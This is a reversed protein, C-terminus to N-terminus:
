LFLVACAGQWRVINILLVFKFFFFFSILEWHNNCLLFQSCVKDFRLHLVVFKRAKGKGIRDREELQYAVQNKNLLRNVLADGLERIHPVFALAHFNVKCRLRQISTPVNDFTLRHSFPAIAAIGYSCWNLLRRPLYCLNTFTIGLWLGLTSAPLLIFIELFFKPLAAHVVKLNDVSEVFRLRNNCKRSHCEWSSLYKM